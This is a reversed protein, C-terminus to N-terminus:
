GCVGSCTGDIGFREAVVGDYHGVVAGRPTFAGSASGDATGEVAIHGANENGQNSFTSGPFGTAPGALRFGGAKGDSSQGGTGAGGASCTSACGEASAM